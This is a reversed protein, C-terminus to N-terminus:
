ECTGLIADIVSRRKQLYEENALIDRAIGGLYNPDNKYLDARQQGEVFDILFISQLADGRIYESERPNDLISRLTPLAEKYAGNGLFLIGYRRKPTKEDNVAEIVAPAVKDGAIILPDM